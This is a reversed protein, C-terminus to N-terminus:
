NCQLYHDLTLADLSFPPYKANNRVNSGRCKPMQSLAHISLFNSAPNDNTFNIERNM